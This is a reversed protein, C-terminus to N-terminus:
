KFRLSLRSLGHTLVALPVLIKSIGHITHFVEYSEATYWGNGLIIGSMVSFVFYFMIVLASLKALKVVPRGKIVFNSKFMQHIVRKNKSFLYVLLPLGITSFGLLPHLNYFFVHTSRFWGVTYTLLYPVVFAIHVKSFDNKIIKMM